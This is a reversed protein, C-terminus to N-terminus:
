ALGLKKEVAQVSMLLDDVLAILTEINRAKIHTIVRSGKRDKKITLDLPVNQKRLSIAEAIAEADRENKCFLIIRLELCEEECLNKYIFALQM